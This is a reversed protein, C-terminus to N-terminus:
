ANLAYRVIVIGSSGAGGPADGIGGSGGYGGGGGSGTNNTGPNGPTNAASSAAGGGGTGGVAQNGGANLAAGGGGGAIFGNVGTGTALLWTSHASSGPGGAGALTNGVLAPAIGGAGGGGGAPLNGVSGFTLGAGNAGAYGEVPSYSGSNGAAATPYEYFGGGGSGGTAAAQAGGGGGGGGSTNLSNFSSTSGNVGRNAATGGAGGAGVTVPVATSITASGTRYGGAGGGGGRSVGGGGGGAIVLYDVALSKAAAFIGTSKFVHYAYTGDSVAYDGGSANVPIFQTAAAKIGYLTVSSGSILNYGNANYVKISTIPATSRWTNANLAVTGSTNGNKNLIPKFISPNSYNVFYTTDVGTMTTYGNATNLYTQNSERFSAAASGDGYLCTRSYNAGTDGNVQITMPGNTATGFNTVMVLDTFTTPINSLTISATASSLTTSYIPTYTSFEGQSGGSPTTTIPM